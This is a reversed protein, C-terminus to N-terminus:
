RKLDNLQDLEGDCDWWGCFPWAIAGFLTGIGYAGCISPSLSIAGAMDAEGKDSKISAIIGTVPLAIITVPIFAIGGIIGGSKSIVREADNPHNWFPPNKSRPEGNIVM